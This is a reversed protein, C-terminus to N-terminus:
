KSLTKCYAMARTVTEVNWGQNKLREFGGRYYLQRWIWAQKHNKMRAYEILEEDNMDRIKKVHIIKNQIADYFAGQLDVEALRKTPYKYGCFPCIKTSIPIMVGCGKKEGSPIPKGNADIGCDKMPPVGNGEKSEEHWLSWLVPATYHGLRSANEGFDLINFHTKGPHIRSGRGYIQKLLTVSTTARNIIITEISPCDYGTTAIGANILIPFEGNEYQQFMKSREGSWAWYKEQYLEYLRLREEYRVWAGDTDNKKPEKPSSMQSVVFRADFGANRFEECTKIVHEINVCFVLAKSGFCLKKYEKVVGKYLTTSNFRDFMQKEDYDGTLANFKLNEVNAGAIGYYDDSVLFGMKILDDVTVTEIIKEYDIALQRMKGSRKPTATFGLVIKDDVLGSEFLYNFEQKHAEDIIIYDVEKRLWNKWYNDKLRNRFTQSMAVYIDKGRNLYKTGAKIYSPELGFNKLTGGSSLLLEARDTLVLGTKKRIKSQQALYSFIVTKGGGTPLCALCHLGGKSLFKRIEGVFEEQYGRLKIM